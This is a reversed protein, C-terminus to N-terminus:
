GFCNEMMKGKFGFGYEEFVFLMGYKM